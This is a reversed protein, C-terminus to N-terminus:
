CLEPKPAWWEKFLYQMCATYIVGGVRGNGDQFPHITELKRYYDTLADRSFEGQMYLEDVQMPHLDMMLSPIMYPPCPEFLVKGSNSGIHVQIKRWDGVEIDTRGRFIMSHIRKVFHEDIPIWQELMEITYEIADITLDVYEPYDDHSLNISDACAKISDERQFTPQWEKWDKHFKEISYM